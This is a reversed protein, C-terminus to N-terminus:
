EGAGSRLREFVDRDGMQGGKLLLELGDIGTGPAAVRCMPSGSSIQWAYSLAEVGLARAAISSTDGGIIAARRLPHRQLVRRMLRGSAIALNRLTLRREEDSHATRDM